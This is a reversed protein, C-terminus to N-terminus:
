AVTESLFELVAKNFGDHDEMNAMHGVGPLMIKRAHPITQSLHEALPLNYFPLDYEGVVVLTPAEIEALRQNASIVSAKVPNHHAFHWGSYDNVIQRLKAAVVPKAQAPTFWGTNLWHTRAQDLDGAKAAQGIADFWPNLADPWPYGDVASADVLILSNVTAPYALAFDVAVAGGLSLGMIHARAVGLFDLLAKLDDAHSYLDQTPLASRGFGRLDYCVVRYNQSFAEIQDAWMRTDLTYGHILVVAPGTGTFEYYLNTGNVAAIGSTTDFHM